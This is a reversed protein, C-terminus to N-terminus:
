QTGGTKEVLDSRMLALFWVVKMLGAEKLEAVYKTHLFRLNAIIEM